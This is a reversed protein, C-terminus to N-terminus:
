RTLYTTPGLGGDEGRNLVKHVLGADTLERLARDVSDVSCRLLRALDRRRIPDEGASLIGFLRVARDSLGPHTLIDSPIL